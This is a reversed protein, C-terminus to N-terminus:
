EECVLLKVLKECEVKVEGSMVYVYPADNIINTLVTERRALARFTDKHLVFKRIFGISDMFVRQRKLHSLLSQFDSQNVKNPAQEYQTLSPGFNLHSGFALQPHPQRM